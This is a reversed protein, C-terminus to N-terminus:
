LNEEACGIIEVEEQSEPEMGCLKTWKHEQAM